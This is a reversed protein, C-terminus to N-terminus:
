VLVSCERTTAKAAAAWLVYFALIVLCLRKFGKWVGHRIAAGMKKRFSEVNNGAPFKVAPIACGLFRCLPEWGEDVSYELLRDRPVLTRILSYHDEFVQKGNDALSGRFFRHFMKTWLPLVFRSNMFLANNLFALYPLLPDSLLPHFTRMM